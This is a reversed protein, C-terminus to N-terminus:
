SRLDELMHYYEERSIQGRAYRRKLAAEASEGSGSGGPGSGSRSALRGIWLILAVVLMIGLVWSFPMGFGALGWGSGWGHM